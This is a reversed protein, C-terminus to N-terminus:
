FEWRFGISPLIPLLEEDPYRIWKLDNGIFQTGYDYSRLNQQDYANFLDLYIDLNSGALAFRRTVRLDLRHYAPLRDSNLDGFEERWRLASELGEDQFVSLTDFEIIQPTFPWGSHAQWAASVSWKPSPRWGVTVSVAHRQDWYQPVWDGHILAETSGLSYSASWDFQEGDKRLLVELGRARAEEPDVRVRDGDLEPFPLIERWLNLYMRRPNEVSRHYLEVRAQLGNDLRHEIGAAIQEARESRAFATEGDSAELEHMGQSQQYVGWGARLTTNEGLNVMAHLRPSLDSDGTHSRNDYRVGAETTLWPTPQMRLAGYAEYETGDPDLDVNLSDPIGVLDGSEGAILTRSFSRYDYHGLLRNFLFGTRFALRDTLDVTWDQKIGFFEFDAEDSVDLFEPGANRGPESMYGVRSRSVSGGSAVTQARVRPTFFAKWTLWGYTNGWGTALEGEEDEDLLADPDLELDDGAQLFHASLLHRSGLQYKVKGLFDYYVPSFGPDADTLALAIDLYGRRGSFLWQGRGDAFAGQSMVTANTISLGLTTRTGETPPNRTEMDFVGAARDGFEVPFGGSHLDIGGITNIDVIGLAGEFDKLHYPEYLEMGDLLILTERDHGGRLFLRTSIDGSAVGPLRKLSRFVDEGVQPVTEIQERSLTQLSVSQAEDLIVFTGPSIVLASLPIVRRTLRIEVTAAGGATVRISDVTSPEWGLGTVTVSYMGPPINVLIFRGNENSLSGRGDSLQILANPVPKGDARNLVLGAVVGVIAEQQTTPEPLIRVQNGLANFTLNTGSLLHDLAASLTRDACPCSVIRNVPVFDPSFVLAAGTVRQIQNLADGLSVERLELGVTRDLVAPPDQARAPTWLGSMALVLAMGRAARFGGGCWGVWANM